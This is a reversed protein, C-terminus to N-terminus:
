RRKIHLQMGERALELRDRKPAQGRDKDQRGVLLIRRVSEEM